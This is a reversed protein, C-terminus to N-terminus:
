AGICLCVGNLIEELEADDVNGLKRIFRSTDFSKVQSCDATSSKSLNNISSPALEVYFAINGHHPKRDRIPVVIRVQYTEVEPTSIIVAPRTKSIEAGRQPQFEKLWIEGQLM